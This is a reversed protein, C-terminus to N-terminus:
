DKVTATAKAAAAGVVRCGIMTRGGMLNFFIYAFDDGFSNDDFGGFQRVYDQWSTVVRPVDVPGWPSYFVAMGRSTPQRVIPRAVQATNVLVTVGPLTNEIVLSPASM